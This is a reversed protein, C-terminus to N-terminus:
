PASAGPMAARRLRQVLQALYARVDAPALGGPLVAGDPIQMSSLVWALTAPTCGGDKVLALPLAAELSQGAHELCMLDVLDREESRSVLKNVVIESPPDVRVGDFVLKDPFASPVREWVLDVVLGDDARTIVFRLYGPARACPSADAWPM